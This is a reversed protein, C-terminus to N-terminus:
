KEIILQNELKFDEIFEDTTKLGELWDISNINGYKRTYNEIIDMEGNDFQQQYYEFDELSKEIEILNNYSINDKLQKYDALSKLIRLDNYKDKRQMGEIIKKFDDAIFCNKNVSELSYKDAINQLLSKDHDVFIYNEALCNVYVIGYEFYSSDSNEKAIGMAELTDMYVYDGDHCDYYCIQNDCYVLENLSDCINNKKGNSSKIEDIDCDIYEKMIKPVKTLIEKINLENRVVM